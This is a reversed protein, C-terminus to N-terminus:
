KRNAHWYLFGELVAKLGARSAAMILGLLAGNKASEVSFADIGAVFVFAFGAAFTVLSSILYRKLIKTNMNKNYCKPSVKHLKGQQYLRFVKARTLQSQQNM